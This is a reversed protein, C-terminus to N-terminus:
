NCIVDYIGAVSTSTSSLLMIRRKYIVISYFMNVAYFKSIVFAVRARVAGEIM